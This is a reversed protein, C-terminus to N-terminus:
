CHTPSTSTTRSWTSSPPASSPSTSRTRARSRSPEVLRRSSVSTRPPWADVIYPAAWLGIAVALWSSPPARRIVDAEHGGRRRDSRATPTSCTTTARMSGSVPLAPFRSATSGTVCRAEPGAREGRICFDWTHGPGRKRLGSTCGPVSRQGHQESFRQLGDNIQDGPGGSGALVLNRGAVPVQAEVPVRGPRPRAGCRVPDEVGLRDAPLTRDCSLVGPMEAAQGLFSRCGVRAAALVRIRMCQFVQSLQEIMRRCGVQHHQVGSGVEPAVLSTMEALVAGEADHLCARREDRGSSADPRQALDLRAAAQDVQGGRNELQESAACRRAGWLIDSEDLLVADDEAVEHGTGGLRTVDDGHEQVPGVRVHEVFHGSGAICRSDTPEHIDPRRVAVPRDCREGGDGEGIVRADQGSGMGTVM